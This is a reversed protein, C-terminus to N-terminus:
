IVEVFDQWRGVLAVDVDDFIPADEDHNIAIVRKARRLGSMTQVSGSAGILIALDPAVTLGSVGIQREHPALYGQVLARTVGWEMDNEESFAILRDREDETTIAGGIILLREADDITTERECAEVSLVKTKQTCMEEAREIAVVGKDDDRLAIAFIHPRVTALVPRHDPTVITAFVQGGYAPRVQEWQGKVYRLDTVDATIGTKLAAATLPGVSRGHDTAPLLCLGAHREKLYRTLHLSCAEITLTSANHEIITLCVVNRLLSTYLNEGVTKILARKISQESSEPSKAIISVAYLAKAGCAQLKSLLELGIQFGKKDAELYVLIPAEPEEIGKITQAPDCPKVSQPPAKNAASENVNEDKELILRWQALAEEGRYFTPVRTRDPAFLKRVRTPSNRYGFIEESSLDEASLVTIPKKLADMRHRFSVPVRKMSEARVQIVAPLSSEIVYENDDIKSRVKIHDCELSIIETM